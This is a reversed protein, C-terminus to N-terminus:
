ENTPGEATKFNKKKVYLRLLVYFLFDAILAIWSSLCGYQGLVGVDSNGTYFKGKAPAFM